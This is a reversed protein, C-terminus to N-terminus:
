EGAIVVQAGDRRSEEFFAAIEVIEVWQQHVHAQEAARIDISHLARQLLEAELAYKDHRVHDPM